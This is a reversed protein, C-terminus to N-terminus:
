SWPGAQLTNAPLHRSQTLRIVFAAAPYRSFLGMPQRTPSPMIFLCFSAAGNSVFYEIRSGIAGAAVASSDREYGAGLRLVTLWRLTSTSAITGAGTVPWSARGGSRARRPETCVDCEPFTRGRVEAQYENCTSAVLCFM